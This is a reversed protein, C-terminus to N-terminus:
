NIKIHTYKASENIPEVFFLQSWNAKGREVKVIIGRYLLRGHSQCAAVFEDDCGLSVCDALILQRFFRTRLLGGGLRGQTKKDHRTQLDGNKFYTSLNASTNKM